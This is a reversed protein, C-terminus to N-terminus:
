ALSWHMAHALSDFFFSFLAIPLPLGLVTGLVYPRFRVGSLALAVNLAPATQFALRSLLVSQVPHADLRAFLKDALRGRLKRLADAGLVRIVWFTVCCSICAAAYTALGGWWRGLALLAAGLFVWGPIQVLNGLAFLGCFILLGTVPHLVFSDHIFALNVNSRLGTLEFVAWLAALFLVVLVLRFYRPMRHNQPM